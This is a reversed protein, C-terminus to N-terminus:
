LAEPLVRTDLRRAQRRLREDFSALPLGESQAVALVVKDNFRSLPRGEERLVALAWRVAERGGSVVRARHDWAYEWVKEALDALDIDLSRMLWVYEYLVIVPIVWVDLSDLLRRAEDHFVSDEFTDYVLVNTDLVARM